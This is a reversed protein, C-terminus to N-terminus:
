GSLSLFIFTFIVKECVGWGGKSLCFSNEERRAGIPLHLCPSSLIASLCAVSVRHSFPFFSEKQAMAPKKEERSVTTLSFPFHLASGGGLLSPPSLQAHSTRSFLCLLFSERGWPGRHFLYEATLSLFKVKKNYMQPFLCAVGCM